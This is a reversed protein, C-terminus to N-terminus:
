VEAWGADDFRPLGKRAGVSRRALRMLTPVPSARVKVPRGYVAKKHTATWVVATVWAMFVLVLGFVLCLVM